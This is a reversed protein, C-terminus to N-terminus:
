FHKCLTHAEEKATDSALLLRSGDEWLSQCQLWLINGTDLGGLRARPTRSGKPLRLPELESRQRGPCLVNSTVSVLNLSLSDRQAMRRGTNVILTPSMDDLGHRTPNGM